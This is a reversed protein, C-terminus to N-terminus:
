KLAIYILIITIITIGILQIRKSSDIEKRLIENQETVNDVRKELLEFHEKILNDQKTLHDMLIGGSNSVLQMLENHNAVITTQINGISQVINTLTQTISTFTINISNIAGFIESLTKQLKDFHSELNIKELRAIQDKFLEIKTHFNNSQEEFKKLEVTLDSQIKEILSKQLDKFLEAFDTNVLRDIEEHLKKIKNSLEIINTTFLSNNGDLYSKTALGLSDTYSETLKVIKKFKEEFVVPLQDNSNLLNKFKVGIQELQTVEKKLNELELYSNELLEEYKAEISM